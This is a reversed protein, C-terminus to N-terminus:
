KKNLIKINYLSQDSIFAEIFSTKQIFFNYQNDPCLIFNTFTIYKELLRM